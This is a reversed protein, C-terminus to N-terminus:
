QWEYSVFAFRSSDPAWSNVNLSGQGGFFSCLRRPNSGDADMLWLECQMNPLHEDPKLHGQHYVIYVVRSGDPSIHGFWCNDENRTMRVPDSGDRNMRWVQMLGSRTSNFWIHKGDPSYEPGDNFGGFTLRKEEGGAAPITYIDVERKGAHERFACYSLEKGDPSWGHLFSPSNPTVLRPGSGDFPVIYVRSSFGADFTMHSVAIADEEPSLVHDNNCSICVGTEIRRERGDKWAYVLGNANYILEGTTRMWNPAEIVRDFRALTTIEGSATDMVNLYSVTHEREGSLRDFRARIAAMDEFVGGTFSDQDIIQPLGYARAFAFCDMLPLLGEGVTVPNGAADFDKFHVSKVLERNRKLFSLPEEGGQMAWGVDAQLGVRGQCLDLMTECLTRGNVKQAIDGAENHILLSVGAEKLADALTLWEISTEHRRIADAKEPMKVVFGRIGWRKALGCLTGAHVNLSNGFIHVTDAKLGLAAVTEMYGDFDPLPWIAQRYAGLPELALCPEVHTYGMDRLKKLAQAPALSTNALVGFLQAGLYM